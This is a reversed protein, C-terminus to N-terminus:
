SICDNGLIGEDDIVDFYIRPLACGLAAVLPERKLQCINLLTKEMISQIFMTLDQASQKELQFFEGTLMCHNVSPYLKHILKITLALNMIFMSLLSRRMALRTQLSSSQIFSDDTQTHVDFTCINNDYSATRRNSWGRYIYHPKNSLSYDDPFYQHSLRTFSTVPIQSPNSSSSRHCKKCLDQRTVDFSTPPSARRFTFPSSLYTSSSSPKQEDNHSDFGPHLLKNLNTYTKYCLNNSTVVTYKSSSHVIYFFTSAVEAHVLIYPYLQYKEQEFNYNHNLIEILEDDKTIIRQQKQLFFELGIMYSEARCQIIDFNLNIKNLRSSIKSEYENTQEGTLAINLTFSSALSSNYSIFSQLRILIIQFEDHTLTFLRFNAEQETITPLDINLISWDNHEHDLVLSILYRQFVITSYNVNQPYLELLVLHVGTTTVNLGIAPVDCPSLSYNTQIEDIITKNSESKSQLSSTENLQSPLEDIIIVQTDQEAVTSISSNTRSSFVSSNTSTSSLLDGGDMSLFSSYHSSSRHDDYKKSLPPSEMEETNQKDPKRTNNGKSLLEVLKTVTEYAKIPRTITINSKCASPGRKPKYFYDSHETRLRDFSRPSLSRHFFGSHTGHGNDGEDGSTTAM